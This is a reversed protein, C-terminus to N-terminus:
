DFMKSISCKTLRVNQLDFARFDLSLDEKFIERLAADSWLWENVGKGLKM